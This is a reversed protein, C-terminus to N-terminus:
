LYEQVSMKNYQKLQYSKDPLKDSIMFRQVATRLELVSILLSAPSHKLCTLKYRM